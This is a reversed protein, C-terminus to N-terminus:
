TRPLKLYHRACKPDFTLEVRHSVFELAVVADLEFTPGSDLSYEISDIMRGLNQGEIRHMEARGAMVRRLREQLGNKEYASVDVLSGRRGGRYRLSPPGVSAESASVVTDADDAVSATGLTSAMSPATAGTSMMAKRDTPSKKTRPVVPRHYAVAESASSAERRAREQEVVLYRARFPREEEKDKDKAKKKAAAREGLEKSRLLLAEGDEHLAGLRTGGLEQLEQLRVQLMSTMERSVAIRHQLTDHDGDSDAGGSSARSLRKM